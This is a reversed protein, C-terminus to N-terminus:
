LLSSQQANGASCHLLMLQKVPLQLVWPQRRDCLQQWETRRVEVQIPQQNPGPHDNLVV